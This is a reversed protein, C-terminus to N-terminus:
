WIVPVGYAPFRRDKSIIPCNAACAEAVLVRDLPDNHHAELAVARLIIARTLPLEEIGHQEMAKEIFDGADVPLHLRKKRCLLAIEWSTVLSVKLEGLNAQIAETAPKSLQEPASALWVFAHTDLLIM